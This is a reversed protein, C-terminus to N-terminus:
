RVLSKRYKMLRAPTGIVVANAEVDKTVTSGAGTISWKGITIDPLVTANAGIYAGNGLQVYGTIVTGPSVQTFDRLVADHGIVCASNVIAQNGISADVNIIAGAMIFNGFGIVANPSIIAAPHILNPYKEHPKALKEFIEQRRENNGIAIFYYYDSLMFEFNEISAFCVGGKFFCEGKYKDDLVAVIKYENRLNIIERVMKTISGDGIIVIKKM